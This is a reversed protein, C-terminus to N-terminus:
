LKKDEILKNVHAEFYVGIERSIRSVIPTFLPRAPISLTGYELWQIIDNAKAGTRPHIVSDQYGIHIINNITYTQLNNILFDSYTWFKNRTNIPKSKNYSNSLPKYKSSMSSRGIKQKSVHERARQQILTTLYVSFSQLLLDENIDYAKSVAKIRSLSKSLPRYILKAVSIPFVKM